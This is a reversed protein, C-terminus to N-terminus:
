PALFCPLSQGRLAMLYQQLAVAIQCVGDSKQELDKTSLVSKCRPSKSPLGHRAILHALSVLPLVSVPSPHRSSAATRDFRARFRSAPVVCLLFALTYWRLILFPFKTPSM